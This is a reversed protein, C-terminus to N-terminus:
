RFATPKFRDPSYRSRTRAMMSRRACGSWRQRLVRTTPYRLTTEELYSKVYVPVGDSPFFPEGTTLIRPGLIDGAEIRRRLNKTNALVSAVDFVSTFGWGTLMEQFAATLETGSKQDAHLFKVPLLHVHSNWLGATVSM